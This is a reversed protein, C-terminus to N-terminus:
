ILRIIASQFNKQVREIWRDVEEKYMSNISLNADSCVVKINGRYFVFYDQGFRREVFVKDKVDWM